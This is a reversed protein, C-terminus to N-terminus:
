RREPLIRGPGVLGDIRAEGAGFALTGSTQFLRQAYSVPDEGRFGAVTYFLTVQRTAPDFLASGAWERSGPNLGDPLANGFDRWAGGREAMLRIRAVGHRLDPDPLAPASLVMWLAWGDFTATTGDALQLPWLDWLDIGAIPPIVAAPAIAPIAQASFDGIAAVHGARWHSSGDEVLATGLEGVGTWAISKGGYAARRPLVVISQM